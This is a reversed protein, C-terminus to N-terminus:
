NPNKYEVESKLDAFERDAEEDTMGEWRKVLFEIAKRRYREKKLEERIEKMKVKLSIKWFEEISLNWKNRVYRRYEPNERATLIIQNYLTSLESKSWESYDIENPGDDM